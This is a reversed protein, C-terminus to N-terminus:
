TLNNCWIKEAVGYDVGAQFDMMFKVHREFKEIEFTDLLDSTDVGYFDNGSFAIKIRDSGSMGSDAHIVPGNGDVRQKNFGGQYPLSTYLQRYNREYALLSEPSCRLELM